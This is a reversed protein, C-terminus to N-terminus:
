TIDLWDLWDLIHRRLLPRHWSFAHNAEPILIYERPGRAREFLAQGQQPPIDSDLGGHLILLPRPAIRAVQEVPCYDEDLAKVQTVFEEPTIGKLWPTFETAIDDMSFEFCRPDAFAGYVAVARPRPDAVAALVAAWGGLSHGILVLQEPDVHPHQGSSLHDLAARVDDPITKLTYVGESGWCGRYHFILSNWGHDRLAHALDHNKEIGPVGHLIVATPKPEDGQALFLTGLLRYGGSDFYVGAQGGHEIATEEGWHTTPDAM